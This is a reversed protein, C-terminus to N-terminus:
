IELLYTRLYSYRGKTDALCRLEYDAAFCYYVLPYMVIVISVKVTAVHYKIAPLSLVNSIYIM